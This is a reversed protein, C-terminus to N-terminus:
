NVGVGPFEWEGWVQPTLEAESALDSVLGASKNSWYSRQLTQFGNGRLLGIDGRIPKQGAGTLNLLALPASVLYGGQGDATLQVQDSVDDARDITVTTNLGLNSTFKLPPTTTGPVHPRYLIAATKGGVQTVLLRESGPAADLMLDLAGGSKFLNLPSDGANHLLGPDGTDFAAYLKDGSETVAARTKFEQHGWDGQQVTRTDITVWHADTWDAFSPSLTPAATRTSVLLPGVANEQQREAEMTLFASKASALLTPTVQLPTDPLRTIGDLGDVRVLCANLCTLYVAGDATQTIMPWFNEEGLSVNDLPMEPVGHPLDWSNTRSDKFLTAVFLGDTTFLYVNGKNGNIAWIDGADGGRPHITDGLLRTSGIVEGPFRPMAANHSAHLGPWLSPYSWMPVGNRVGGFGQPAFPKPATTCVTWGDGTVLVQDGGTTTNPQAGDVQTKGAALSYQPVGAATFGSPTYRITRVDEAAGGTTPQGVRAAVFSLDRMVTIGGSGSGAAQFSVEDPEAVGDGNTDSWLFFVNDRKWNTGAPWHASFADTQLLPWDNARGLAACPIAVGKEMRWIVNISSGNTPGTNYASTMYKRGGVYLPTEPPMNVFWGQPLNAPNYDDRHYVDALRSAGTKWDITFAMGSQDGGYYWVNKDTPDLQGGGGYQPPGYFADILEGDQGWISVRKPAFDNEAVWLRGDAGISIGNPHNMHRPNYPGPMPAGADGVTRLPKGTADFVKVQHSNGWDSIYLNGASDVAVHQPDELGQSVVTQQAALPVGTIPAAFRVLTKGSLALLDGQADFALGRPDALPNQGLVKQGAVDILLLQGGDLKPLAAVLVGDRVALGSLGAVDKSPFKWNAALVLKDEGSGLRADPPANGAERRLASLRLEDDWAVGAYAYIDPVAKAGADRALETAGTWTGGVWMQGHLKHGAADLWALGSGGETVQSAVLIQPGSSTPQGARAPAEGAPLWLVTSPSTHNALWESSKDATAWGPDGHNYLQTQYHLGIAPRVLGRVRYTGPSVLQGPIHFVAHSAADTDRGLDDLGEWWATNDGAPFYTEGLLNRVRKGQADDIVLTVYGAQKLHFHLAIPPHAEVKPAETVGPLLRDALFSVGTGEDGGVAYLRTATATLAALNLKPGTLDVKPGWTAGGDDSEHVGGGDVSWWHKADQFFPLGPVGSIKWTHGGDGTEWADGGLPEAFGQEASAFRVWFFQLNPDKADPPLALQEWTAGDDASHFLVDKDAGIFVDHDDPLSIVGRAAIFSRYPQEPTSVHTWTLGGDATRLIGDASSWLYGALHNSRFVLSGFTAGDGGVKVPNWTAGGDETRLVIGAGQRGYPFGTAMALKPSLAAISNIWYAQPSTWQLQWDAGGNGTHCIANLGAAWGANNDAFSSTVLLSHADADRTQWAGPVEPAQARCSAAGGAMAALAVATKLITKL